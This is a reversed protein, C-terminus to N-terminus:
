GMPHPPLDPHGLWHQFEGLSAGASLLRAATLVCGLEPPGDWCKSVDISVKRNVETSDPDPEQNIIALM